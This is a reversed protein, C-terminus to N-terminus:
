PYKAFITAANTGGFGFSTKLLYNIRHNQAQAPIDLDAAFVDVDKINLTPPVVQEQISKIAFISEVGSAACLAHGFSSKLASIKTKLLHKGFANRFSQIESQDGIPTSTAHSNIHDVQEPSIGSKNLAARIAREAGTGSPSSIHNADATMGTALYEAYIKANRAKAHEFDELIVIGAGESFVFGDRGVSYPRSALQPTDNYKRSLATMADFGGFAALCIASESAGAVVVKADGSRIMAAGDEIAYLGSACAANVSRNPGRLGFAISVHGAGMNPISAPIYFPGYNSLALDGAPINALSLAKAEIMDLAGLGTSISVGTYDKQEESLNQWASDILAERASLLAYRVFRGYKKQDIFPDTDNYLYPLEGTPVRALVESKTRGEFPNQQSFNVIGSKGALLSKWCYEVGVGLPCVCGLGTVVIRM